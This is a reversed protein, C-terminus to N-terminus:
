YWCSKVLPRLLFIVVYGFWCPFREEAVSGQAFDSQPETIYTKGGLLRNGLNCQTMAAGLIVALLIGICWFNGPVQLM